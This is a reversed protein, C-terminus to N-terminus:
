AVRAAAPVRDPAAKAFTPSVASSLIVVLSSCPMLVAAALPTIIGAVALSCAVANYLLSFGVNRRIVRRLRRAGELVELLPSIGERTLVIDAAAISAGTGGHVAIGVDALALAAADNVGDGVMVVTSRRGPERSGRRRGAEASSPGDDAVLSAVFDRKAEPTLGGLADEDDLELDSAIARVLDPHDGSLVRVRVGRAQLAAITRRADPRLSDGVAAVGRVQGDVAVFVPSLNDLVAGAAAADLSEPVTAGRETVYARTGVRVEHGDLRGGIGQGPVETAAEVTRVLRLPRGFSRQFARAVPHASEAELARAFDLARDEGQWRAVALRGGTLTGTKDALLTTAQRMRELADPDKVFIGARAARMLAISVALPISLGLACPCAVVLLAIVREVVVEPGKPLWAAATIVALGLVAQAFRRALRDTTRLLAPKRALAEQVIALLTGVRTKAGAADVRVVLRAGLNTAGAYVADGEKVPQATAEGTLVANDLSSRGSLVVGDVPVLEGSRVEVRDGPALATLPVEVTPAGPLDGELRRAFELFAVGRLSDARELAARQACRQLQRAGLLAAVIMALSDFWLSGTGRITNVASAAFSVTLAIAIPLDIHVMGARLGALATQYFPRASYLIVPLAVGFSLWRFFTEYPSDMGSHEGAYIAGHLFMLNMACAAAVGTRALGARDEARRAEQARSARHIHPTYGLRDLARGVASLRTRDPRWTVEAVGTGANLRVEDVGALVAPLKEVLWVCAACHVGELYLRTRLREAGAPATAEARVGEDDFDDFSRGTVRAPELSAQQQAALRYYQDLGWEHVLTYVQRCGSCCFQRQEGERRMTAPVPLTCHACRSPPADAGEHLRAAALGEGRRDAGGRSPLIRGKM